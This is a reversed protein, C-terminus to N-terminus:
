WGREIMGDEKTRISVQHHVNFQEEIDLLWSLCKEVQILLM